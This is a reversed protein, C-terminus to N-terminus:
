NVEAAQVIYPASMIQAKCAAHVRDASVCQLFIHPISKLPHPPTHLHALGNDSFIFKLKEGFIFKLNRCGLEAVQVVCFASM